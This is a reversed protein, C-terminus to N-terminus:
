LRSFNLEMDNIDGPSKVESCPYPLLQFSSTQGWYLGIIKLLAQVHRDTSPNANHVYDVYKFFLYCISNGCNGLATQITDIYVWIGQPSWSSAWRQETDFSELTTCTHEWSHNLVGIIEGVTAWVCDLPWSCMNELNYVRM